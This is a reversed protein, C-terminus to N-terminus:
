GPRCSRCSSELCCRVIPALPTSAGQATVESPPVAGLGSHVPRLRGRTRPQPVGSGRPGIPVRPVNKANRGTPDSRLTLNKRATPGSRGIRANRGIPGIPARSVIRARQAASTAPVRRVGVVLRDPQGKSLRGNPLLPAAPMSPAHVQAMANPTVALSAEKAMRIERLMLIEQPARPGARLLRMVTSSGGPARPIQVPEDPVRRLLMLLMEGRRVGLRVPMAQGPLPKAPLPPVPLHQVPLPPVPRSQPPLMRVPGGHIVLRRKVSPRVSATM